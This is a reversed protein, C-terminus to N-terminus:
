SGLGRNKTFWARAQTVGAMKTMKTMKVPNLSCLRQKVPHFAFEDNKDNDDFGGEERCPVFARNVLLGTKAVGLTTPLAKDLFLFMKAGVGCVGEQGCPSHCGSSVKDLKLTFLM